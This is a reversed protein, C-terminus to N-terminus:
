EDIWFIPFIVTPVEKMLDVSEIPHISISLQIRTRGYLPTATTPEFIFYMEHKEKVPNMGYIENQYDPHALYFHPLSAIIPVGICNTMDHVGKKLCNDPTTCFCRFKPDETMDGFDLSYTYSELGKYKINGVHYPELSRCITPSFVGLKDAPGLFPAFLTGDSGIFRNCEEGSWISMKKMGNFQVIQGLEKINKIGRKVRYRGTPTANR